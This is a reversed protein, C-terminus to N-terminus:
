SPVVDGYGDGDGSGDGYGYGDGSGSGYGYGYGSGSGYGSGHLATKAASLWREWGASEPVNLAKAIWNRWDPRPCEALVASAIPRAGAWEIAEPCAGLHLLLVCLPPLSGPQIVVM